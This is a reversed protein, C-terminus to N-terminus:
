VINLWTLHHSALPFEGLKPALLCSVILETCILFRIEEQVCGHGLVGGGIFKNAFDVHLTGKTDEITGKASVRVSTFQNLTQLQELVKNPDSCTLRVFRLVNPKM